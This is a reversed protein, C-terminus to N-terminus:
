ATRKIGIKGYILIAATGILLCAWGGTEPVREPASFDLFVTWGWTAPDDFVPRTDIRFFQPNEWSAFEDPVFDYSNQFVILEDTLAFQEVFPHTEVNDSFGEHWLSASFWM